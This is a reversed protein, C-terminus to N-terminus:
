DQGSTHTLYVRLTTDSVPELVLHTDPFAGSAVGIERIRERADNVGQKVPNM